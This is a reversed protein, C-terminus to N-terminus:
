NGGKKAQDLLSDFMHSLSSSNLAQQELEKETKSGDVAYYNQADLLEQRDTPDEIKSADERRIELIRQFYTKPGLGDFLAKFVTWHMKGREKNLDIGYQEFFSAYIAGADRVYDFQKTAEIGGDDKEPEKLGYPQDTIIRSIKEFSKAYFDPDSPLRQNKGFFLKCSQRWKQFPNLEQDEQLQLYLLVTDFALDIDYIEGNWSFQTTPSHTLSLM